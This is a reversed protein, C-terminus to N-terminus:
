AEDHIIIPIPHPGAEKETIVRMVTHAGWVRVARYFSIAGSQGNVAKVRDGPKIAHGKYLFRRQTSMPERPGQGKRAQGGAAMM